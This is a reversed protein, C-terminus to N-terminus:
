KKQSPLFETLMDIQCSFKGDPAHSLSLGLGLNFLKLLGKKFLDVTIEGDEFAYAVNAGAGHYGAKLELYSDNKINTSTLRPEYRPSLSISYEKKAIRKEPSLMGPSYFTAKEASSDKSYEVVFYSILKQAQRAAIEGIPSQFVLHELVNSGLREVMQRELESEDMILNPYIEKTRLRSVLQADKELLERTYAYLIFDIAGKQDDSAASRLLGAKEWGNPDEYRISFQVGKVSEWAIDSLRVPGVGGIKGSLHPSKATVPGSDSDTQAHLRAGFFLVIMIALM